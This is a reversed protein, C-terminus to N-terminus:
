DPTALFELLRNKLFTSNKTECEWIVCVKWGLSILSTTNRADRLQTNSFKNSWTKTHTAPFTSRSCGEHRHWFCGHVFIVKRRGPFVLDPTGPLGRSHLRFRFGLQHALKRVVLEPTTNKSRVRSMNSSRRAADIRDVVEQGGCIEVHVVYTGCFPIVM